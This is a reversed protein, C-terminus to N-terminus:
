SFKYFMWSCGLGLGRSIIKPKGSSNPSLGGEGNNWQSENLAASWSATFYGWLTISGSRVKEGGFM